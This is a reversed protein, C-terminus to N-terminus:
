PRKRGGQRGVQVLHFVVPLVIAALIGIILIVVLLEVLTFGRRDMAVGEDVPPTACGAHRLSGLSSVPGPTM